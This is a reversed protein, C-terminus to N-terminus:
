RHYLRNRATYHRPHDRGARRRRYLRFGRGLCRKPLLRFTLITKDLGLEENINELTEAIDVVNTETLRNRVAAYRKHKLLDIIEDSIADIDM